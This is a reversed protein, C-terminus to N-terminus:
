EEDLGKAIRVIAQAVHWEVTRVSIDLRAAIEKYCHGEIRHLLFVERTRPPLSQVLESYRKRMQEVEIAQHQDPSVAIEESPGIPIHPSRSLLRRSRDILLNRVITNLFAGHDRESSLSRAGLLRAFADQVLDNAEEQSNVRARIRRRLAPAHSRYLLDFDPSASACEDFPGIDDSGSM